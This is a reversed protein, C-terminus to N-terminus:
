KRKAMRALVIRSLEARDGPPTQGFIMNQTLPDEDVIWRMLAALADQQSIKRATLMKDWDAKLEEDIRARINQFEKVPLLTVPDSSGKM